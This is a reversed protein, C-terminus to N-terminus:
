VGSGGVETHINACLYDYVGSLQSDLNVKLFTKLGKLLLRHFAVHVLFIPLELHIVKYCYHLSVIPVVFYQM